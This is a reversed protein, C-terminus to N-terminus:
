STLTTCIGHTRADAEYQPQVFMKGWLYKSKLWTGSVTVYMHIPPVCSDFKLFIGRRMVSCFLFSGAEGITLKGSFHKQYSKQTLTHERM